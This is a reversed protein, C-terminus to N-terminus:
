FMEGAPGPGAPPRAATRVANDQFRFISPHHRSQTYEFMVGDSNYTQSSVVALCNFGDLILWTRDLEDAMEVTITRKSTVISMHVEQELYRYISGQAIEKTLGPMCDRRFYNHNFIRPVGDLDHVRQLYFLETGPPFGTRRSLAEDATCTTFLVVRTASNQGTRRATEAFSEITGMTYASTEIPQYINCVGWGQRTQVYGDRVLNALARRVTNRSCQFEGILVNESPLLGGVPYDGAEIQGKLISYIQEYKQRPM